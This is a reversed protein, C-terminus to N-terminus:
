REFVSNLSGKVEWAGADNMGIFQVKGLGSLMDGVKVSIGGANVGSSLLAKGPQASRITWTPLSPESAVANNDALVTQSETTKVSVSTSDLRRKLVKVESKLTLVNKKLKNVESKHAGARVDKNNQLRTELSAIEAEMSEFESLSLVVSKKDSAVVEVSNDSIASLVPAELALDVATNSVATVDNDVNIDLTPVDVVSATVEEVQSFDNLFGEVENNTVDPSEDVDGSFVDFSDESVQPTDFVVAEVSTDPMELVDPTVDVEQPVVSASVALEANSVPADSEVVAMPAVANTSAPPMLQTYVFGGGVVAVLISIVWFVSSSKKKVPTDTDSVDASDDFEDLSDFEEDDFEDFSDFEEDDFEDCNFLMM